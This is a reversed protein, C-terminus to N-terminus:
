GEHSFARSLHQPCSVMEYRLFLDGLRVSQCVETKGARSVGRSCSQLRRMCDM